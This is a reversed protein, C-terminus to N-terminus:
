NESPLLIVSNTCYLKIKQLPFDTFPIHKQYVIVGNGDDCCLAASSDSLNVTLTWVQFEEAKVNHEFHNALAIEDVLWYAGATEALYQVGDTYYISSNIAHRYSNESGTFQRLDEATLAVQEANPM